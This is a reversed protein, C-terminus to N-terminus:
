EAAGPKHDPNTSGAPEVLTLVAIIAMLSGVSIMAVPWIPDSAHAMAALIASLVVVLLRSLTAATAQAVVRQERPAHDMFYLSRSTGLGTVAVTVVFLTLAHFHVGHDLGSRHLVVLGVGSLLVMGAGALMVARNSFSSLARWMPAAVMLAAASSVVLATLGRTSSHHAAAAILAFFPVSLGAIVFSLRIVIFKRFWSDAWLVRFNRLFAIAADMPSGHPVKIARRETPKETLTLMVIASLVFCLVGFGIVMSHRTPAPADKLVEHLVLVVAITAAGGLTKQWYSLRMRDESKLTDSVFDVIMLAKFEELMGIAFIVAVFALILMQQSGYLAVLVLTLFCAAIALDLRAIVSKRREVQAAIGSLAVDSLTGAVQRVSVLIGAVFLPLGMSVALFAVVISPSAMSWAMVSFAGQGAMM